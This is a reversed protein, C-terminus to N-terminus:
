KYNSLKERGDTGDTHVLPSFHIVLLKYSLTKTDPM